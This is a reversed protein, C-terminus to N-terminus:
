ALVDVLAGNPLQLSRATAPADTAVTLLEDEPAADRRATASGDLDGFGHQAGAEGAQEGSAGIDLQLLNLGQQQLDRRLDDASQQLLQAAGTTDAIVKAVLGDATHRLHIEIGGLEAPSLSIRAHTVGREASARMALRVTEVAHDLTVPRAPATAAAANAATASQSQGLPHTSVQGAAAQQGQAPQPAAHAPAQEGPKAAATAVPSPAQEAAPAPAAAQEPRLPT